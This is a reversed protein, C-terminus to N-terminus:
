LSVRLGASFSSLISSISSKYKNSKITHVQANEQKIQEM